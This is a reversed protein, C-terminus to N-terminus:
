NWSDHRFSNENFRESNLPVFFLTFLSAKSSSICGCLMLLFSPRVNSLQQLGRQWVSLSLLLGDSVSNDNVGAGLWRDRAVLFLHCPTTRWRLPLQHSPSVIGGQSFCFTIYYEIALHERQLCFFGSTFYQGELIESPHSLTELPTIM